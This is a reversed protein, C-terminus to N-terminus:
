NNLLFKLLEAINPNQRNETSFHAKGNRGGSFDAKETVGEFVVLVAVAAAANTMDDDAAAADDAGIVVANLSLSAGDSVRELLIMEAFATALATRDLRPGLPM